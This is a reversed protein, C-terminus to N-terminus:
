AFHVACPHPPQKRAGKAVADAIELAGQGLVDREARDLAVDNDRRELTREQSLRQGHQLRIKCPAQLFTAAAEVQDRLLEGPACAADQGLVGRQRLLQTRELLIKRLRHGVYSLLESAQKSGAPNCARWPFPQLM